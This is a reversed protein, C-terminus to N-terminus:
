QGYVFVLKRETGNNFRLELEPFNRDTNSPRLTWQGVEHGFGCKLIGSAMGAFGSKVVLIYASHDIALQLRNGRRPVFLWAGTNREIWQGDRTWVRRGLAWTKGKRYGDQVLVAIIAGVTTVGIAVWPIALHDAPPAATVADLILQSDQARATLALIGGGPGAMFLTSLFARRLSSV